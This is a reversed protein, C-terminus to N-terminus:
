ATCSSCVCPRHQVHVACVPDTSYTFQVCLTQATIFQACMTQATCSSCVCPRHQVHVACVPDTSCLLCPQVWTQQAHWSMRLMVRASWPGAYPCPLHTSCQPCPQVWIQQAHWSMRLRAGCLQSVLTWRICLPPTYQDHLHVMTNLHHLIINIGPMTLSNCYSTIKRYWTYETSSSQFGYQHLKCKGTNQHWQKCGGNVEMAPANIHLATGTMEDHNIKNKLDCVCSWDTKRRLM